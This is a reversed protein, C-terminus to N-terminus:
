VYRTASDKSEASATHEPILMVIEAFFPLHNLLFIFQRKLYSKIINFTRDVYNSHCHPASFSPLKNVKDELTNEVHSERHKLTLIKKIESLVYICFVYNKKLFFFIRVNSISM